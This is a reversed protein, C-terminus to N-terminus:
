KTLILYFVGPFSPTPEFQQLELKKEQHSADLPDQIYLYISVIYVVHQGKTKLSYKFSM